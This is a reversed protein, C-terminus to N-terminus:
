ESMYRKEKKGEKGNYRRSARRRYTCEKEKVKKYKQFTRKEQHQERITV